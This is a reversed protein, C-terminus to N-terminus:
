REASHVLGACVAVCNASSVASAENPRVVSEEMVPNM